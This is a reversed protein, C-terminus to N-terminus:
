PGYKFQTHTQTHLKKGLGPDLGPDQIALLLGIVKAEKLSSYLRLRQRKGKEKLHLIYSKCYQTLKLHVVYCTLIKAPEIGNCTIELYHAYDTSCRTNQSNQIISSPINTYLDQLSVNEKRQPIYM